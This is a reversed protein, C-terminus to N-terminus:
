GFRLPCTFITELVVMLGPVFVPLHFDRRPKPTVSVNLYM